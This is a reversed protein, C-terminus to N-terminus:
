FFFSIILKILYIVTFYLKEKFTLTESGMFLSYTDWAKLINGKAINNKTTEHIEDKSTQYIKKAETTKKLSLSIDAYYFSNYYNKNDFYWNAQHYNEIYKSEIEINKLQEKSKKVIEDPVGNTVILLKFVKNADVYDDKEVMSIGDEYLELSVRKMFESASTLHGIEHFNKGGYFVANFVSGKEEYWMAEGLFKNIEIRSDVIYKNILANKSIDEDVFENESLFEYYKKANELKNSIFNEYALSSLKEAIGNLLTRKYGEYSTDQKLAETLYYVSNYYDGKGYYFEGDKYLKEIEKQKVPEFAEEAETVEGTDFDYDGKDNVDSYEYDYDDNYEYEYEEYDYKYEENKYDNYNYEEYDYDDNYDYEYEEYKYDDYSSQGGGHYHYEGYHLGYNGCNTQCTHGGSSDTRGSHGEAVDSEILLLFLLTFLTFGKKM